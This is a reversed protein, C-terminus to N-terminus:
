GACGQRVEAPTGHFLCRGAAEKLGGLDSAGEARDHSRVANAGGACAAECLGAPIAVDPEPPSPDSERYHFPLM